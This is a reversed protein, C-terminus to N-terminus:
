PMEELTVDLVIERYEEGSQRMLHMEMITGPINNNLLETLNSFTEIQATGMSVIVDGSQIGANMAPSDMVIGTVYAGTPVGSLEHAEQTVDIGNIGLYTRPRGNSMREITKKIESIGIVSILNKTDSSNYSQDIIGLVEGRLSVIMGTAQSSGYIDTTMYEYNQDTMNIITDKSTIMGYGVSESGGYLRGIAIVPSALITYVKSNGLTAPVMSEKTSEKLDDMPVAVISLGTNADSAKITGEAVTSDCLTVRIQQVNEIVDSKCLILLERGNDTIYLGSTSNRNEYSNDFWDVDSSVGMVKVMSKRAAEAVNYLDTYQDRYVTVPDVDSTKEIIRVPPAAVPEDELIMDEPLIEDVDDTPIEVIEPEEEPHLINSFVPELVLFTICALVGFIVAMSATIITRRLLKKRNLPRQKVREQFNNFETSTINNDESM